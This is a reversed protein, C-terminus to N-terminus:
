DVRLVEIFMLVVEYKDPGRLLPLEYSFSMDESYRGNSLVPIDADSIKEQVAESL